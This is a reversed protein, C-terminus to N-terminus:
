VGNEINGRSNAKVWSAFTVAMGEELNLTRCGKSLPLWLDTAIEEGDCRIDRLIIMKQIKRDM